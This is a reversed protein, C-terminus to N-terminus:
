NSKNQYKLTIEWPHSDVAFLYCLSSTVAFVGALNFYVSLLFNVSDADFYKFVLYLSLLALSGFLPFWYADESSLKESEKTQKVSAFSGFAIPLLAMFLISVYALLLPTDPLGSM